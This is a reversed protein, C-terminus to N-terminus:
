EGLSSDSIRDTLRWARVVGPWTLAWITVMVVVGVLMSWSYRGSVLDAGISLASGVTLVLLYLVAGQLRAVRGLLALIKTRTNRAGVHSYDEAKARSM